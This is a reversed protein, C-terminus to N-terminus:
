EEDIIEIIEGNNDNSKTQPQNYSQNTQSTKQPSEVQEILEEDPNLSSPPVESFSEDALLGEGDSKFGYVVIPTEIQVYLQVGEPLDINKGRVIIEELEKNKGSFTQGVLSLGEAMKNVGMETAAEIGVFIKTEQGDIAKLMHFDTDIKGNQFINKARVVKTVSGEGILGKTFVLCGDVFVDEIVRIPIIDGEQLKKSSTPATTEVKILMNAPLQVKAVPLIEAGYSAKALARIRDNFTGVTVKGIINTELMAIRSNIGGGSVQRNTNWELANVKALVGPANVNSYLIDSIGDIRANMNGTTNAGKYDKELRSIRDLLAGVQESGYTDIEIRALKANASEDAAASVTFTFTMLVFFILLFKKMIM